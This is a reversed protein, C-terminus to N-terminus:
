VTRTCRECYHFFNYNSLDCYKLQGVKIKTVQYPLLRSQCFWPRTHLSCAKPYNKLPVTVSILNVKFFTPGYHKVSTDMMAACNISLASVFLISQSAGIVVQSCSRKLFGGLYQVQKRLPQLMISLLTICKGHHKSSWLECM